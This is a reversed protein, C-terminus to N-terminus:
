ENRLATLPDIRAARRAPLYAAIVAVGLLIAIVMAYVMPDTASVDFLLSELARAAVLAVATGIVVGLGATRLGEGVIMLTIRREIAGLASRIGLERTRQGVSYSIVGYIGVAGLILGLTAFAALLLTMVRSAQTSAAFIEDLSRLEAVPVTRDFDHIAARIQTGIGKVSGRVAFHMFHLDQQANPRYAEEVAPASPSASRVDGVVGVVTAWQRNTGNGLRIREGLPDRDPWYHKAM